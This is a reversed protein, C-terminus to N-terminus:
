TGAALRLTELADLTVSASRGLRHSPVHRTSVVSFGLVLIKALTAKWSTHRSANASDRSVSKTPRVTQITEAAFASPLAAKALIEQTGRHVSASTPEWHMGASPMRVARLGSASKKVSTLTEVSDPPKWHSDRPASVSAMARGLSSASRTKRVRTQPRATEVLWSATSERGCSPTSAAAPEKRTDTRSACPTGLVSTTRTASLKMRTAPPTLTVWTVVRASASTAARWTRASRAWAVPPAPRSSQASTSTGAGHLLRITLSAEGVSASAGDMLQYANKMLHAPDLQRAATSSKNNKQWVDGSPTAKLDMRACANLSELFIEASLVKVVPNTELVNTSISVDLCVTAKVLLVTLACVFQSGQTTLSASPTPVVSSTKARTDATTESIRRRATVSTTEASPMAPVPTTEKASSSKSVDFLRTELHGLPAAATTVEPHTPAYLQYEANEM